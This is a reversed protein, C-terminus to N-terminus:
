FYKWIFWWTKNRKWLCCKSILAQYIWLERQVDWMCDWTKIFNWELDYQNVKKSNKCLIWTKWLFPKPNNYKFHNKIKLFNHAHQMNEFRTCWELNELKNDDKIWNIHNVELKNEPNPIFANAVLRHIWITYRKYNKYLYVQLYGRNKQQKLIKYLNKVNGMNSVQYKWEYWPIDKWIEM